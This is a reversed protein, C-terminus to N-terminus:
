DYLSFRKVDGVFGLTEWFDHAPHEADELRFVPGAGAQRLWAIASGALQREVDARMSGPQVWMWDIEGSIGPTGRGRAIWATVFGIIDGEEVAVLTVEDEHVAGLRFQTELNRLGHESIGIEDEPYREALEDTARRVLERVRAAEDVQIRRIELM